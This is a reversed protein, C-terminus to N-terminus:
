QWPLRDLDVNGGSIIIGIRLGKPDLKGELLAAIPVASSPEVITKMREWVLRMADVIAQESVTVIDAVHKRTAYRHRALEIRRLRRREARDSAIEDDLSARREAGRGLDHGLGAVLKEIQEQLYALHKLDDNGM